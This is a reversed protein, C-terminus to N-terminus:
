DVLENGRLGVLAFVGPTAAIFVSDSKRQFDYASGTGFHTWIEDDNKTEGHEVQNFAARGMFFHQLQGLGQLRGTDANQVGANAPM